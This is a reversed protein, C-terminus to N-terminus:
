RAPTRHRSPPSSSTRPRPTVGPDIWRDRHEVVPALFREPLLGHSTLNHHKRCQCRLNSASTGGGRDHALAHDLDTETAPKRCGAVRCTGDRWHLAARLEGPPQYGLSTTDMVTGRPDLVLRRFLTTESAALERVWGAPIAHERDRTVGPGDGYGILDTADIAIAIEGRIETETGTCSTLWHGVLDAQKQAQTRRDRHGPEPDTAPLSKAARKLRDEVVLAVPTPVLANIWSTGDDLHNIEVRREEVSREAEAAVQEAEWRGRFRKLWSRLEGVTLSM